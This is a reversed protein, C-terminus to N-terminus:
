KNRKPFTRNGTTRELFHLVKDREFAYNRNMLITHESAESFGKYLRDLYKICDEATSGEHPRITCCCEALFDQMPEDDDMVKEIERHRIQEM